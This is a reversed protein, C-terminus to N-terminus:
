ETKTEKLLSVEYMRLALVGDYTNLGNEAFVAHIGRIAANLKDTQMQSYLEQMDMSKIQKGLEKKKEM